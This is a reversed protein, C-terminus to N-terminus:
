HRPRCPSRMDGSLALAMEGAAAAKDFQRDLYFANQSAFYVSFSEELERASNAAMVAEPGRGAWYYTHALAVRASASLPDYELAKKVMAIGEDFRGQVWALYFSGYCLLNRLYRPNLALARLFEREAKAWEWDYMVHIM